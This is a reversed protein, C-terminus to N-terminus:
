SKWIAIIVLIGIGFAFIALVVLFKKLENALSRKELHGEILMGEGLIKDLRYFLNSTIERDEGAGVTNSPVASIGIEQESLETIRVAMDYERDRDFLNIFSLLKVIFSLGGLRYTHSRM